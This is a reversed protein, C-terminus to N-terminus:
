PAKPKTHAPQHTIIPGRYTANSPHSEGGGGGTTAPERMSNLCENDCGEGWIYCTTNKPKIVAGGADCMSRVKGQCLQEARQREQRFAALKTEFEPRGLSDITRDLSQYAAKYLLEDGDIRAKWQPSEFFKAMGPTIFSPIIYICPRDPFGNSFSGSSRARIYLIDNVDLHLLMQLVVLSEDLREMIMVLNYEQLINRVAKDYNMKGPFALSVNSTSLDQLLANYYDRRMMVQRFKADTPEHQFVTVEFHFFRSIARATPDRIISFLFSKSKDRNAYHYASAKGHNSRHKCKEFPKTAARNHALRMVMGAITTSGTKEPRQFLIGERSPTQLMLRDEGWFCPFPRDVPWPKYVTSPGDYGEMSVYSKKAKRNGSPKSKTEHPKNNNSPLGVMAAAVDDAGNPRFLLRLQRSHVLTSLIWTLSATVVVILMSGATWQPKRSASRGKKM